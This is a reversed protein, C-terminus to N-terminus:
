RCPIPFPGVPLIWTSRACSTSAKWTRSCPFNAGIRPNFDLLKYQGDRKDFRYDLDVIGAYGIAKLLRLSQQALDANPIAVGLATPGASPPYSRAEQRSPSRVDPKRIAIATFFGIKPGPTPFTSRFSWTALEDVGAQRYLALLEGRSRVISTSRVGNLVAQSDVAKVIVPFVAHEAFSQVDELSGPFIMEPCPVALKECLAHLEAKNALLRPLGGPLQPFRFWPELSTAHEAVLAAARDDTPVLVARHGLQGAIALLRHALSGAGPEFAAWSFWGSLYRSFEPPTFSGEGAAYVPVGARGLSRMIGLTGHHIPDGGTKFVLAPVTTDLTPAM